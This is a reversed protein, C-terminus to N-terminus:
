LLYFHFKVIIKSLTQMKKGETGTTGTSNRGMWNNINLVNPIFSLIQGGSEQKVMEM